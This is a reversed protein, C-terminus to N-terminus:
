AAVKMHYWAEVSDGQITLLAGACEADSLSQLDRHDSNGYLRVLERDWHLYVLGRGVLYRVLELLEQRDFLRDLKM